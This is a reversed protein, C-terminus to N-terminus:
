SLVHTTGKSLLHSFFHSLKNPAAMVHHFSLSVQLLMTVYPSLYEAYLPNSGVKQALEAVGQCGAERVAHNDADCMKTYYRCLPAASRAVAGMGSGGKEEESSHLEDPSHPSHAGFVLRWTEQSYLKVGQALYFRNLCM